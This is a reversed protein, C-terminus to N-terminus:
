LPNVLLYLYPNSRYNENKETNYKTNSCKAQRFAHRYAAQTGSAKPPRFLTDCGQFQLYMCSHAETYPTCQPDLGPGKSSWGISKSSLWRELRLHHSKFAGTGQCEESIAAVESKEMNAGYLEALPRAMKVQLQHKACCRSQEM